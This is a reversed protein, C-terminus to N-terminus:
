LREGLALSVLAVPTECIRAALRTVDDFAREPDTDLIDYSRLVRLREAEIGAQGPAELESTM